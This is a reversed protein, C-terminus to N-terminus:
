KNSFSANINSVVIDDCYYLMLGLVTNSVNLNSVDAYSCNVLIVQGANSFKSAELYGDQNSYYYIPKSHVTNTADITHSVLEEETNSNYSLFIGGTEMINASVTINSTDHDIYIGAYSIGKIDNNFVTIFESNGSTGSGFIDINISNNTFTNNKITCNKSMYVKLGASNSTFESNEITGNAVDNLQVGFSDYGTSINFKCYM